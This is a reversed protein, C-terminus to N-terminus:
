SNKLSPLLEAAERIIEEPSGGLCEELERREKELLVKKAPDKETMAKTAIGAYRLVLKARELKDVTM